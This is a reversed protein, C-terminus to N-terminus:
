FSPDPLLIPSHIWYPPVAVRNVIAFFIFSKVSLPGLMLYLKALANMHLTYTYINDRVSAMNGKVICKEEDKPMMWDGDREQFLRDTRLHCM